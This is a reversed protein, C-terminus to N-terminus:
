RTTLPCVIANAHGDKWCTICLGCATCIRVDLQGCNGCSNNQLFQYEHPWEGQPKPPVPLTRGPVGSGPPPASALRPPSPPPMQPVAGVWSARSARASASDITDGVVGNLSETAREDGPSCVLPYCTLLPRSCPQSHALWRFSYLVCKRGGFRLM